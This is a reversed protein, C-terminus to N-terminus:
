PMMCRVTQVSDSFSFCVIASTAIASVLMFCILCVKKREVLNDLADKYILHHLECTYCALTYDYDFGYVDVSSLDVENNAFITKPDM